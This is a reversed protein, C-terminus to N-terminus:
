VKYPKSQMWVASRMGSCYQPVLCCSNTQNGLCCANQKTAWRHLQWHRAKQMGAHPCLCAGLLLHCPIWRAPPVTVFVVVVHQCFVWMTRLFLQFWSRSPGDCHDSQAHGCPWHWDHKIDDGLGCFSTSGVCACCVVMNAHKFPKTAFANSLHLRRTDMVSM